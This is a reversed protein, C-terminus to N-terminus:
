HRNSSCLDFAAIQDLQQPRAALADGRLPEHDQALQTTAPDVRGGLLDEFGDTMVQGPRGDRGDVRRELRNTSSPRARLISAPVPAASYSARVSGWWCMTQRSHPRM